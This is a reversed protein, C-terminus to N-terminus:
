RQATTKVAFTGFGNDAFADAELSQVTGQPSFAFRVFGSADVDVMPLELWFTDANYHRLPYQQPVSSLTAMLAGQELTVRIPGAVENAFSGVYSALPRSPTVAEPPPPMPATLPTELFQHALRASRDDVPLSHYLNFLSLALIEPLAVGHLNCLVVVGLEGEADFLMIAHHGPSGGNHWVLRKGQYFDTILGQCYAGFDGFVGHAMPTAPWHLKRMTEPQVLRQGKYQGLQMHMSMYAAMDRATSGVIAAPAFTEVAFSYPWDPPLATVRGKNRQHMAAVNAADQFAEITATSRTMGLPAFIRQQLDKAYPTKSLREVLRAAILFFSNQYAYESRFSSIPRIHRVNKEVQTRSNGFMVQLDGGCTPLGSHQALLDTVQFERTVWPDHVMFEPWHKLVQDNFALAGKDVEMGVLVSTFSKTISAIQFLTDPTVPADAGQQLVGFGKTWTEGNNVIAVAAGPIEWDELGQQVLREFEPLVARLQQSMGAEALSPPLFLLAFLLILWILNRSSNHM